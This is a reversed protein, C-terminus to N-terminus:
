RSGRARKPAQASMGRPKKAAPAAEPEDDESHPWDYSDGYDITLESGAIITRKHSYLWPSNDGLVKVVCNPTASHNIFTVWDPQDAFWVLKPNEPHSFLEETKNPTGEKVWKGDSVYLQKNAKITDATFVGFRHLGSRALLLRPLKPASCRACADPQLVVRSEHPHETACMFPTDSLDPAALICTSLLPDGVPKAHRVEPGKLVTASSAPLGRTSNSSVPVTHKVVVVKGPTQASVVSSECSVATAALPTKESHADPTEGAHIANTLHVAERPEDTAIAVRPEDIIPVAM